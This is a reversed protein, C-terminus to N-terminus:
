TKWRSKMEQEIRADSWTSRRELQDSRFLLLWSHSDWADSCLWHSAIAVSGSDPADQLHSVNAVLGHCNRQWQDCGGRPDYLRGRWLHCLSWRTALLASACAYVSTCSAQRSSFRRSQRRRHCSADHRVPDCYWVFIPREGRSVIAWVFLKRDAPQVYLEMQWHSIPSPSIPSECISALGYAPYPSEAYLGVSQFSKRVNSVFAASGTLVEQEDFM